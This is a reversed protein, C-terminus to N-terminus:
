GAMLYSTPGQLSQNWMPTEINTEARPLNASLLLGPLVRRSLPLHTNNVRLMVEMGAVLGSQKHTRLEKLGM